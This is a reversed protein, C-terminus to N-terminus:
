KLSQTRSTCICVSLTHEHSQALLIAHIHGALLALLAAYLGLGSVLDFKRGHLAGLHPCSCSLFPLM